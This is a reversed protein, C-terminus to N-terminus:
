SVHMLVDGAAAGSLQCTKLNGDNESFSLLEFLMPTQVSFGAWLKLPCTRKAKDSNFLDFLDVM